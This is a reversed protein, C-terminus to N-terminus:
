DVCSAATCLAQAQLFGAAFFRDQRQLQLALGREIWHSLRHRNQSDIGASVLVTLFFGEVGSMISPLGLVIAELADWAESQGQVLAAAHTMLAGAAQWLALEHIESVHCIKKGLRAVAFWDRELVHLMAVLSMVFGSTSPHQGQRARRLSRAAAQRALTPNGLMWEALALFALGHAIADETMEPFPHWSIDPLRRLCDSAEKFRGLCVLTNGMAYTAMAQRKPQQGALTQLSCALKYSLEYGSTSSSGLWLAWTAAFEALSDQLRLAEKLAHAYTDRAVSAGYGLQAAQASALCMMADFADMPAADSQGIHIVRLLAQAHYAVEAFAYVRQAHTLAAKRWIRAQALRGAAECRDSMQAHDIDVCVPTAHAYLQDLVQAHMDRLRNRHIGALLAECQLSHQFRYHDAGAPDIFGCQQLIELSRGVVDGAHTNIDISPVSATDLLAMLDNRAFKPGLVAAWEAVARMSGLPYIQAQLADILRTPIRKAPLPMALMTKLYLLNGGCQKVVQKREHPPWQPAMSRAMNELVPIPLTCLKRTACSSIPISHGPRATLVLLCPAILGPVYRTLAQLVELSSPDLWHADEVILVTPLKIFNALRYVWSRRFALGSTVLECEDPSLTGWRAELAKFPSYAWAQRAQVFLLHPVVELPSSSAKDLIQDLWYQLLHSKGMGAEAEILIWVPQIATNPRHKITLCQAKESLWALDEGRGLFPASKMSVSPQYLSVSLQCPSSDPYDPHWDFQPKVAQYVSPSVLVQAPKATLALQQAEHTVTFGVDPWHHPSLETAQDTQESVPPILVWGWAVGAATDASVIDLAALVAQECATEQPVPYGFCASLGPTPSQLVHGGARQIQQSRNQRWRRQSDWRQEPADHSHALHNLHLVTLPLKDPLYSSQLPMHLNSTNLTQALSQLKIPPDTDLANVYTQVFQAWESLGTRLERQQLRLHLLRAMADEHTPEIHLVRHLAQAAADAHAIQQHAQAISLGLRVAQQQLRVRYGQVWHEFATSPIEIGYLFPGQYRELLTQWHKLQSAGPHKTKDGEPQWRILALADCPETGKWQVETRHVNLLGQAEGLAGKLVHLMRRLLSLAETHGAEPWLLDAVVDRQHVKPELALVALLAKARQYPVHRLTSTCADGAWLEFGGLLRLDAKSKNTHSNM